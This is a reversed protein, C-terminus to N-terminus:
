YQFTVCSLHMEGKMVQSEVFDIRTRSIGNQSHSLSRKLKKEILSDSTADTVVDDIDFNVSFPRGSIDYIAVRGSNRSVSFTLSEPQVARSVIPLSRNRIGTSDLDDDSLSILDVSAMPTRIVESDDRRIICDEQQSTYLKTSAGLAYDVNTRQFCGTAQSSFLRTSSAKSTSESLIRSLPTNCMECKMSTSTISSRENIFTCAECRWSSDSHSKCEVEMVDQSLSIGGRRVTGQIQTFKDSESETFPAKCMECKLEHVSLVIKANNSFTCLRCSWTIRKSSPSQGLKSSITSKAEQRASKKSCSSNKKSFFSQISGKIIQKGQTTTTNKDPRTSAFFSALEDESPAKNETETADMRVGKQGEIMRGLCSVKKALMGWLALDVSLEEDKCVCYMINVANTQGIRHCRDEAQALVGPTWHLEAFIVSSAATLTLGVGAATVSLLGM